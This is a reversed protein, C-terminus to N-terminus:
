SLGFASLNESNYLRKIKRSEELRLAMLGGYHLGRHNGDPGQGGGDQGLRLKCIGIKINLLALRELESEITTINAAGNDKLCPRRGVELIDVGKGTLM